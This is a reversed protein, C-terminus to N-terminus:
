NEDDGERKPLQKRIKEAINKMEIDIITPPEDSEERWFQKRHNRITLISSVSVYLLILTFASYGSVAIKLGLYENFPKISTRQITVLAIVISIVYLLGVTLYLAIVPAFDYADASEATVGFQAEWDFGDVDIKNEIERIHVALRAIGQSCSIYRIFFLGIAFPVLSLLVKNGPRYFAYGVIAGVATIARIFLKDQLEMLLHIEDRHKEYESLLSEREKEEGNTDENSDSM